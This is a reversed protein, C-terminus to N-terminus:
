TPHDSSSPYQPASVSVSLPGQSAPNNFFPADSVYVRWYQNLISGDALTVQCRVIAMDSIAAQLQVSTSRLDASLAPSSLVTAWPSTTSWVAEGITSTTAGNFKCTLTVKADAYLELEQVRDLQYKSVYATTNRSM